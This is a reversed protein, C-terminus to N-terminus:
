GREGTPALTDIWRQVRTRFQEVTMGQQRLASRTWPQPHRWASEKVCERLHGLAESRAGAEWLTRGLNFHVLPDEPSLEVARRFHVIAEDRRGAMALALGLNNEYDAKVPGVTVARELHPIADAWRQANLLALGLAGHARASGEPASSWLSTEDRWDRNRAVSRVAGGTVLAAILAATAPRRWAARAQWPREWLAALSAGVALCVGFSPVYLYREAVFHDILPVVNSVPLLMVITWAMGFAVVPFRQAALFAGGVWAVLLALGLAVHGDFVGHHVVAPYDASLRLPFFLLRLVVPVGAVATALVDAYSGFGPGVVVHIAPPFFRELISGAHWAAAAAGLVLLPLLRLVIGACRERPYGSGRARRLLALLPLVGVLGVAAVEKALLAFVFCGLAAAYALRPRPVSRHFLMASAAVFAMALLEKRNEISAVAEVHVPHVAFLLGCLAAPLLRETLSLALLGALASCIAHLLLNTLHYGPQWPGWLLEELHITAYTLALRRTALERLPVSAAALALPDDYVLGNALTNAFVVTAVIAPFAGVLLLARRSLGRPALTFWPDDHPPRIGGLERRGGGEPVDRSV